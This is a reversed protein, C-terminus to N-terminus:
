QVGTIRVETRRNKARGEESGNDAIPKTKGYGKAQLRTAAIGKQQLYNVVAKARNESLLQNDKDSGVNDTHGSIEIHLGPNDQLLQVLRDLEPLSGPELAYAKNDFFINHLITVADTAIPQLPINQTTPTDGITTKLSFNGSYFLYGPKNVNFAYDKGVPLPVLYHGDADSKVSAIVLGTQLDILDLTAQLHANSKVDYVFGTVYLTQLPRAAPYLEFSYIDLAGRSDSRDSAFFATKGDAAVFLSADEDITNIPFGLNVAPGWQGNPQRRSYFIDMGGYGPHGNSAFFLTQNDAHIFPTTENGPTNINSDLRVPVDWSGDPKRQSMFIDYGADTTARTFYLTQNDPALCPQSDWGRTNIPAGMNQPPLWGGDKNRLSVYLDCSGRGNPFDCGTYVLMSGDQSINQAGENFETNVPEGMDKAAGWSQAASDWQSIYFDENRGGVRRTFVLTKGDITASPFYEPDKTNIGPGLNHPQFPVNTAAQVAFEFNAKLSKVLPSQRQPTSYQNVIALAQVFNGMGALARAYSLMVPALGAEDISKLKEFAKIANPYDKLESYTLGMQGYADAFNPEIKIAEELSRLAQAPQYNRMANLAEDFSAKAKKKATEYTVAQARLFTHCALLLFLLVPKKM